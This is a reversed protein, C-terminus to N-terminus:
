IPPKRKHWDTAQEYAFAIHLVTEEGFPKGIVQMGTPLGNAFGAPISIAPIGAINVPLTCVDSLYMQLPDDVKEGLKFAATPSTPTVLADYKEFAQDFEQRILTRVKQAKLYYADYYGASLAYTGLMIRRKVEAGFGFQKTKEMAEWMNDAHQYSFGYKVGDYRALNASAESPALIYYAALAYKTHPLSVEWDIEAGLEELRKIATQLNAKVEEQIGDFYEQPIGLRLDKLDPILAKTYDPVPYPISTSDRQDHGAITRMVLACDTVDKTIPGIQDLSSAFAVLGFRSVRGYTPKLGVVNCFGAPQRISGGTDSGLTYVAEDTAVAVASGGSSGGPVRDLDWPNETPFFASNETSSGMAFEDMNTKGLIVTKRAKLKDIVTADYPPTFNELMKSSCTTRMGKTCMIDKILAPIGTLPEIKGGSIAKDAEEAQELAADENITVCAHVKDEVEALRRLSAKTLEVSSIKGEKLLQHAQSITLRHLEDM